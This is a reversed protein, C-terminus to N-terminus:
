SKTANNREQVQFRRPSVGVAAKFYKGFFSPNAFSLMDGVQQVTYKGSNLLAKAELIVYDKIWEGAHRGSINYIVQSLYKPTICLQDAYYSISRENVFDKEVAKIFQTFLHQSRNKQPMENIVEPLKQMVTCFLLQMHGRILERKFRYNEIALKRRLSKYISICEQMEEEEIQVLPNIRFHRQALLHTNGETGMDYAKKSFAMIFVRCYENPTLYEAVCGPFIFMAMNKRIHYDTMNIRISIEGDTCMIFLGFNVKIPSKDLKRWTSHKMAIDIFRDDSTLNDDLLLDDNWCFSNEDSSMMSFDLQRLPSNGKM